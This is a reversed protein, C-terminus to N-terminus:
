HSKRKRYSSFNKKLSYLMYLLRPTIRLRHIVQHYSGLYTGDKASEEILENFLQYNKQELARLSREFNIRALGYIISKRSVGFSEAIKLTLIFDQRVQEIKETNSFVVSNPNNRYAGLVEDIYAIKGHRAHIIHMLWDFVIKTPLTLEIDEITSRRFMKASHCLGAGYKVLEEITVKEARNSDNYFRIFKNTKDEFVKMNHFCASVDLNKDLYDSQTQLKNPYMLDDGDLHAIYEGKCAALVDLYNQNAGVNSDHLVLSINNYRESFEKLIEQTGDKSADDGIVIEFDFSSQQSAVSTLVDRIFNEANYTIIAVSVKPKNM